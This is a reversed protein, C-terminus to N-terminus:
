PLMDSVDRGYSRLERVASSSIYEHEPLSFLMVTEVGSLHRNLDAMSREYEYDAVSRVGRLLVDAGYAAVADVTLGSYTIVTVRSEDKYLESIEACASEARAASGPKEANVGIGIIIKDFMQLGREVISAHGRTFPNFSGSFFAIAM